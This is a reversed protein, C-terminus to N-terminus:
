VHLIRFPSADDRAAEDYLESLSLWKECTSVQTCSPIAFMVNKVIISCHKLANCSSSWSLVNAAWSWSVVVKSSSPHFAEIGFQLETM